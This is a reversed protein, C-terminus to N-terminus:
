AKSRGHIARENFMAKLTEFKMMSGTYQNFGALWPHLGPQFVQALVAPDQQVIEGAEAESAAEIIGLGGQNDMFPGGMIIQKGDFFRKMYRAHEKFFPQEFILKEPIWASGPTYVVVFLM